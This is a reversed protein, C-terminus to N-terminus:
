NTHNNTHNKQQQNRTHEIEEASPVKASHEINQWSFDYKLHKGKVIHGIPILSYMLIYAHIWPDVAGIDKRFTVAFVYKFWCYLLLCTSVDCPLADHWWYAEHTEQLYTREATSGQTSAVRQRKRVRPERGWSTTSTLSTNLMCIDWLANRCFVSLTSTQLLLLDRWSSHRTLLLRREPNVEPTRPVCLVPKIRGAIM